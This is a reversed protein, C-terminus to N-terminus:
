RQDAYYAHERRIWFRIDVGTLGELIQLEEGNLPRQGRATAKFEAPSLGLRERLEHYSVRPDQLVLQITTPWREISSVTRETVSRAANAGM